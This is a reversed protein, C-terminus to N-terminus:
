KRTVAKVAWEDVRTGVEYKANCMIDTARARLNYGVRFNTPRGEHYFFAGPKGGGQLEPAGEGRVFMCGVADTAGSDLQASADYGYVPIGLLPFNFGDSAKSHDREQNAYTVGTVGGSGSVALAVRLDSIQRPSLVAVYDRHMPEESDLTFIMEEFDALTMATNTTGVENTIGGFEAVIDTEIKAEVARLLRAAHPRLVALQQQLTGKDLIDSVSVMRGELEVADDTIQALIVAAETATSTVATEYSLTSTTTFDTGETAQSASIAAYRNLKLTKSGKGGTMYRNLHGGAIRRPRAELLADRGLIETLLRTAFTTSTSQAM